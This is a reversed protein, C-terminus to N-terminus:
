RPSPSPSVPPRAAPSPAVDITVGDAAIGAQRAEADKILRKIAWAGLAVAVMGAPGLRRAVFPLAMGLMAGAPGAAVGGLQRAVLSTATVGLLRTLM